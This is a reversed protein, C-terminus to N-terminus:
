PAEYGADESGDCDCSAYQGNCRPCREIGCEMAHLAGIPTGCDRCHEPRRNWRGMPCGRVHRRGPEAGCLHCPTAFIDVGDDDTESGYAVLQYREGELIVWGNGHRGSAEEAGGSM